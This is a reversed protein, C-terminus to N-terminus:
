ALGSNRDRIVKVQVVEGLVTQFVNKIFTEDM